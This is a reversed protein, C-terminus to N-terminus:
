VSRRTEVACLQAVTATCVQEYFTQRIDSFCSRKYAVLEYSLVSRKDVFALVAVQIFAGM